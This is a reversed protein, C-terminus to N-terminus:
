PSLDHQHFVYRRRHWAAARAGDESDIVSPAATVDTAKGRLLERASALTEGRRTEKIVFPYGSETLTGPGWDTAILLTDADKWAVDFKAEPLVFGGPVFAKKAADYERASKADKGGNSLLILCHRDDHELCQAGAFM